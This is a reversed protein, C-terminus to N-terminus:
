LFLNIQRLFFHAKLVRIYQIYTKSPHILFVLLKMIWHCVSFLGILKLQRTNLGLLLFPVHCLILSLCFLLSIIVVLLIPSFAGSLDLPYRLHLFPFILLVVLIKLFLSGDPPLGMMLFVCISLTLFTWSYLPFRIAITRGGRHTTFM